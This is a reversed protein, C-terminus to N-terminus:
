GEDTSFKKMFGAQKHSPPSIYGKYDVVITTVQGQFITSKTTWLVVKGSKQTGHSGNHLGCYQQTTWLTTWLQLGCGYDVITTWLQLGCGYDVITTWL